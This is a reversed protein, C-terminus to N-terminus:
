RFDMQLFTSWVISVSSIFFVLSIIYNEKISIGDFFVKVSNYIKIFKIFEREIAYYNSRFFQFNLGNNQKSLYAFAGLSPGQYRKM